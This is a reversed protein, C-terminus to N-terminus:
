NTPTATAEETTPAESELPTGASVLPGEAPVTAPRGLPMAPRVPNTLESKGGPAYLMKHLLAEDWDLGGLIDNGKPEGNARRSGAMIGAYSSLDMNMTAKKVDAFHCTICAPAGNFWLNPTTFLPQVDDTFTGRCAKGSVDNFEFTETESAGAEVWAGLLDVATIRCRPRAAAAEVGVKPAPLTAARLTPIPTTEPSHLGTCSHTSACGTLFLLGPWFVAVLILGLLSLYVVSLFSDKERM